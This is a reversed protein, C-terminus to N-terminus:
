NESYLPTGGTPQPVMIIAQYWFGTNLDGFYHMKNWHIEVAFSHAM